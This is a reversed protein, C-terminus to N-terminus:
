LCSSLPPSFHCLLQRLSVCWDCLKVWAISLIRSRLSLNYVVNPVKVLEIQLPSSGRCGETSAGGRAFETQLDGRIGGKWVPAPDWYGNSKLRVKSMRRIEGRTCICVPCPDGFGGMGPGPCGIGPVMDAVRGLGLGPVMEARVPVSRATHMM